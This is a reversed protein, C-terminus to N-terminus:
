ERSLKGFKNTYEIRVANLVADAAAKPANAKVHDVAFEFREKGSLGTQQAAAMVAQGAIPLLIEIGLDRAFKLFSILEPRIGAFWIKMGAKFKEWM